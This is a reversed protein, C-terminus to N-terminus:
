WPCKLGFYKPSAQGKGGKGWRKGKGKGTGERGRGGTLLLGGLICSSDPSCQLNGGAPDAASGWVIYFNTCKLRLIPCRTADFKSIKRRILQGCQTLLVVLNPPGLWSKSPGTGEGAKAHFRWLEVGFCKSSRTWYAVNNWQVIYLTCLLARVNHRLNKLV